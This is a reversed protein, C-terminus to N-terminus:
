EEIEWIVMDLLDPDTEALRMINAFKFDDEPCDEDLMVGAKVYVEGTFPDVIDAYAKARM